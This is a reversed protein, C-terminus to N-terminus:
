RAFVLYGLALGVLAFAVCVVVEGVVDVDGQPRWREIWQMERQRRRWEPENVGHPTFKERQSM